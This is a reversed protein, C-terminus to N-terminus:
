SSSRWYAWLRREAASPTTRSATASPSTEGNHDLTTQAPNHTVITSVMWSTLMTLHRSNRACGVFSTASRRARSLKMTRSRNNPRAQATLRIWGGASAGPLSMTLTNTTSRTTATDLVSPDLRGTATNAVVAGNVM